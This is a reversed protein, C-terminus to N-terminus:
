RCDDLIKKNYNTKMVKKLKKLFKEDSFEGNLCAIWEIMLDMKTELRTIRDGDDPDICTEIKTLRQLINAILGGLAVILVVLVGIIAIILSLDIDMGDVGM